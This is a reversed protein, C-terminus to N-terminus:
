YIIVDDFTQVNQTKRVQTGSAQNSSPQHHRHKVNGLSHIIIRAVKEERTAFPKQQLIRNVQAYFLYQEQCFDQYM